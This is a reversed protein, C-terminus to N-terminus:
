ELRRKFMWGAVSLTFLAILAMPWTHLWVETAPMNKLFIGKIIIFFHKLPLLNTFPQLWTPMNEIPTAYGSLLMVPTIFVFSGLISQQQTHSVSSIFLGIGVISFLFVIMSLYLLVLSGKFPVSFLLVALIMLLTSEVISILMAPMMKGILIQWPQLPSVLLQDFTGNERERSVSLSTLTLALMMSLIAVLTPVTFYIYDINPNFFSRFEIDIPRAIEVGQYHLIDVNFEQLILTLYGLVIQSANSKRGDLVVQLPASQGGAVLRSFNSQFNLSVIVKQTDIARKAEQPNKYEYVHLFYPSGKIRQVLEHSYWGSDQNYVALSINMVDLTAAHSLIILQVLPPLIPMFRSKKDRLVALIEKIILAKVRLRVTQFEHFRSALKKMM